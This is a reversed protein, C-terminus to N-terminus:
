LIAPKWNERHAVEDHMLQLLNSKWDKGSEAMEQFSNLCLAIEVQFVFGPLFDSWFCSAFCMGEQTLRTRTDTLHRSHAEKTNRCDEM